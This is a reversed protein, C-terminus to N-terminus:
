DEEDSEEETEADSEEDLPIPSESDELNTTKVADGFLKRYHLAQNASAFSKTIEKLAQVQEDRHKPNAYTGSYRSTAMEFSHSGVYRCLTRKEDISLESSVIVTAASKRLDTLSFSVISFRKLWRRLLGTPSRIQGDETKSILYKRNQPHFSRVKKLINMTDGMLSIMRPGETRDTKHFMVPVHMQGNKIAHDFEETTINQYVAAREPFNGASTALFGILWGFDIITDYEYIKAQSRFIVEANSYLAKWHQGDKVRKNLNALSEDTVLRQFAKNKCKLAIEFSPSMSINWVDSIYSRLYYLGNLILKINSASTGEARVINIFYTLWTKDTFVLKLDEVELIKIRDLFKNFGNAYMSASALKLGTNEHVSEPTLLLVKSQEVTKKLTKEKYLEYDPFCKKAAECNDYHYKLHGGMKIRTLCVCERFIHVKNKSSLSPRPLNNVVELRVIVRQRKCSNQESDNDRSNENIFEDVSTIAFENTGPELQNNSLIKKRVRLEEYTRKPSIINSLSRLDRRCCIISIDEQLNFLMSRHRHRSPCLPPETNSVKLCVLSYMDEINESIRSKRRYPEPLVLVSDTPVLAEENGVKQVKGNVVVITLCEFNDVKTPVTPANVAKSCGKTLLFRQKNGTEIFTYVNTPQHFWYRVCSCFAALLNDSISEISPILESPRISLIFISSEDNCLNEEVELWENKDFSFGYLRRNHRRLLVPTDKEM